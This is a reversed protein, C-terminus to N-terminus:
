LVRERCSARGIQSPPDFLPSGSFLSHFPLATHTQPQICLLSFPPRILRPFLPSVFTSLPSSKLAAIYIPAHTHYLLSLSPITAISHSLLSPYPPFLLLSALLSKRASELKSEECKTACSVSFSFDVSFSPAMTNYQFSQTRWFCFRYVFDKSDCCLRMWWLWVAHMWKSTCTHWRDWIIM